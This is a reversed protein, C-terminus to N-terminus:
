CLEFNEFAYIPGYPYEMKLSLRGGLTRRFNGHGKHEVTIIPTGACM